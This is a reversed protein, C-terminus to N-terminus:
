WGLGMAWDVDGHWLRATKDGPRQTIVLEEGHEDM